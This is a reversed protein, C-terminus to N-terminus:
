LRASATTDLSLLLTPTASVKIKGKEGPKLMLTGTICNKIGRAGPNDVRCSLEAETKGKNEVSVVLYRYDSLNWKGCHPKLTIGSWTRSNGTKICLAGNPTRSLEADYKRFSVPNFDKKIDFLNLEASLAPLSIHFFFLFAILIVCRMEKWYKM